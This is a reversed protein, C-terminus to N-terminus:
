LKKSIFLAAAKIQSSRKSEPISQITSMASNYKHGLMYAATLEELTGYCSGGMKQALELYTLASQWDGRRLFCTGLITYAVALKKLNSGCLHHFCIGSGYATAIDDCDLSIEALIRHGKPWWPYKRLLCRILEADHAHATRSSYLHWFCGIVASHICQIM